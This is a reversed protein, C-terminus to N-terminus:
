SDQKILNHVNILPLVLTPYNSTASINTVAARLYPFLAATGNLNCMKKFDDPSFDGEAKFHGTIILDLTFPQNKQSAEEFIICRLSVIGLNKNEIIEVKSELKFTIELPEKFSFEPNHVFNIKEFKYGTFVFKSFVSEKEPVTPKDM